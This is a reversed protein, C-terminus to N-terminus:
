HLVLRMIKDRVTEKIGVFSLSISTDKDSIRSIRGPLVLDEQANLRMILILERGEAAKIGPNHVKAGGASLDMLFTSFVKAAGEPDKLMVPLKLQKRYYVRNQVREIHESHALKLWNEGSEMVQTHVLYYGSRTDLELLLAQGPTARAQTIVTLGQEDIERIKGKVLGGKFLNLRVTIGSVFEATSHLQRPGAQASLGLKIRIKVILTDDIPEKEQMRKVCTNFTHAHTLLDPLFRKDRPFYDALKKLVEEESPTLGKKLIVNKFRERAAKLIKRRNKIQFVIFLFLPLFIIAAILVLFMIYEFPSKKFGESLDNLFQNLRGDDIILFLM